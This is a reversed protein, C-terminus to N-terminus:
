RVIVRKAVEIARWNSNAKQVLGLRTLEALRKSVSKETRHVTRAIESLRLPHSLAKLIESKENSIIICQQDSRIWYYSSRVKFGEVQGNRRLVTLLNSVRSEGRNVRTAIQSTTLPSSLIELIRSGLYHRAYHYQQYSSMMAAFRAHKKSHLKSVGISWLKELNYRGSIVYARESSEYRFMVGFFRLIRELLGLRKGQAIRLVRSRHKVLEKINGEGAFFGQLIAQYKSSDACIKQSTRRWNRALEVGSVRYIYYPVNARRDIYTRYIAGAVPWDFSAHESPRYVYIRAPNHPRFYKWIVHHFFAVLKSDNNTFTVERLTKHDGEALWLGVTQALDKGPTKTFLSVRSKNRRV